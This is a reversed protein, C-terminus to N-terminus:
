AEKLKAPLERMRVLIGELNEISDDRHNLDRELSYIKNELRKITENKQEIIEEKDKLFKM